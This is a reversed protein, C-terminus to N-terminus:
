HTVKLAQLCKVQGEVRKGARTVQQPETRPYVVSCNVQDVFGCVLAVPVCLSPKSLKMLIFPAFVRIAQM